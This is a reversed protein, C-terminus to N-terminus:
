HRFRVGDVQGLQLRQDVAAQLCDGHVLLGGL